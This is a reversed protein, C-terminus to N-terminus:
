ISFCADQAALVDSGGTSGIPTMRSSRPRLLIVGIHVGPGSLGGSKRDTKKQDMLHQFLCGPGGVRGIRGHQRNADDQEVETQAPHRWYAARSRVVRREESRDEKPGDSASVPM